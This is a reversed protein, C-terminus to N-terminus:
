KSRIMRLEVPLENEPLRSSTRVVASARQWIFCPRINPLRKSFASLFIRTAHMLSVCNIFCIHELSGRRVVQARALVCELHWGCGRCVCALCRPRRSGPAFYLRGSLTSSADMEIPPFSFSCRLDLWAIPSCPAPWSAFTMFHPDWFYLRSRMSLDPHMARVHSPSRVFRGLRAISAGLRRMSM